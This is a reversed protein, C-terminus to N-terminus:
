DLDTKKLIEEVPLRGRLEVDNMLVTSPTYVFYRRLRDLSEKSEFLGTFTVVSVIEIKVQILMDGKRSCHFIMM